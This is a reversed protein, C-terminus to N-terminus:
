KTKSTFNEKHIKMKELLGEKFSEAKNVGRLADNIKGKVSLETKADYAASACYLSVLAKTYAKRREDFIAKTNSLANKVYSCTPNDALHKEAQTRIMTEFSKDYSASISKVSQKAYMSKVFSVQVEHKQYKEQLAALGKAKPYNELEKLINSLKDHKARACHDLIDNADRVLVKGYTNDLNKRM